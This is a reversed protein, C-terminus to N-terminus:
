WLLAHEGEYLIASDFVETFFREQHPLEEQLRTIVNGGVVVHVNPFTEKIMKCFTLGALLQMQTGISVGVVDPQERNVVPLVLQRCVDRYINVQEDELCAFVERSVGPRYGLNSEMPYFVLSAPYYAASIYQMAERFTNLAWELKDADYFDQSRVIRKAEMAREALDFVEVACKERLLALQDTEQDTLAARREREELLRRQLDLRGSIWFLFTDSFFLDYMEINIDKQVVEHGAQRLVATLSPLALYPATPVWEPPFLLLTKLKRGSSASSAKSPDRGVQILAESM